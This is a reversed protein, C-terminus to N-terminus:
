KVTAILVTKNGLRDMTSTKGSIFIKWIQKEFITEIKGLDHGQWM